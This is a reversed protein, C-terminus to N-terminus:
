FVFEHCFTLYYARIYGESPWFQLASLACRMLFIGVGGGAGSPRGYAEDLSPPLPQWWFVIGTLFYCTYILEPTCLM